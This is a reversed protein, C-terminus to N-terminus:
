LPLIFSIGDMFASSFKTFASGLFDLGLRCGPERGEGLSKGVASHRLLWM